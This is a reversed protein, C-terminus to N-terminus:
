NYPFDAQSMAMNWIYMNQTSPQSSYYNIYIEQIDRNSCM